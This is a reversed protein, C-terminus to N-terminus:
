GKRNDSFSWVPFVVFPWELSRKKTPLETRSLLPPYFSSLFSGDMATTSIGVVGVRNQVNEVTTSSSRAGLAGGRQGWDLKKYFSLFLM